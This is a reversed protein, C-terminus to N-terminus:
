ELYSKRRGFSIVTLSALLVSLILFAVIESYNGPPDALLNLNGFYHLFIHTRGTARTQIIAYITMAQLGLAVLILMAKFSKKSLRLNKFAGSSLDNLLFYISFGALMIGLYAALKIAEEPPKFNFIFYTAYYLGDVVVGAIIILLIRAQAIERAALPLRAQQCNRKEKNRFINWFVTLGYITLLVYGQRESSVALEYLCILPIFGLLGLVLKKNYELEARLIYWM